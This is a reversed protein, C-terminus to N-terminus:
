EPHTAHTWPLYLGVVPVCIQLVHVANEVVSDTAAALAEKHTQLMPYVPSSEPHLVHALPLNLASTPVAGHLSQGSFEFVAVAPESLEARQRHLAPKRLSVAAPAAGQVWHRAPVYWGRWPSDSHKCHEAPLYEVPVAWVETAVQRVQLWFVHDAVIPADDPVVQTDHGAPVADPRPLSSSDSQLFSQAAPVVPVAPDHV